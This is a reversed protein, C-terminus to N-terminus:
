AIIQNRLLARILFGLLVSRFTEGVNHNQNEEQFWIGRALRPTASNENRGSFDFIFMSNWDFLAVDSVHLKRSYKKAQKSLAIAYKRFTTRHPLSQAEGIKFAANQWNAMAPQFDEWHLIRTNKFELVAITITGTNSRAIWKIDTRIGRESVEGVCQLRHPGNVLQSAAVNVPHLLYMFSARLVDSETQLFHTREFQPMRELLSPTNQPLRQPTVLGILVRFNEAEFAAPADEAATSNSTPNFNRYNTGGPLQSMELNPLRHQFSVRITPPAAM